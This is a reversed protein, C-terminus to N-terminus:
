EDDAVPLGPIGFPEGLRSLASSAVKEGELVRDEGDLTFPLSPDVTFLFELTELSEVDPGVDGRM